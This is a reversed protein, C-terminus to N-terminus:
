FKVKYIQKPLKFGSNKYRKITAAMAKKSAKASAKAAKAQTKANQNMMKTYQKSFKTPKSFEEKLKDIDTKKVKKNKIKDVTKKGKSVKKETASSLVNKQGIKRAIVITGIVALAVGAAILGRKFAQAKREAKAQAKEEKLRAKEEATPKTKQKSSNNTKPNTTRKVNNTQPKVSANTNQVQISQAKRKGWRMGPVGYHYLEDNNM